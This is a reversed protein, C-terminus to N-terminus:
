NFFPMNFIDMRMPLYFHECKSIIFFLFSLSISFKKELYNSETFLAFNQQYVFFFKMENQQKGANGMKITEEFKEYENLVKVFQIKM